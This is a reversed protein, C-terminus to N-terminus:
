RKSKDRCEDNQDGGELEYYGGIAFMSFKMVDTLNM